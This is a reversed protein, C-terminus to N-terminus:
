AINTGVAALRPHIDRDRQGGDTTEHIRKAERWLDRLIAKATIRLADNQSHGATWEPHSFATHMRRDDYVVRYPSCTCEETHTASWLGNIEGSTCSKSLQRKCSEAILYARMKATGSWNAREGRRRKPAVGASTAQDDDRRQGPDGGNGGAIPMQTDHREQGTSTSARGGAGDGPTDFRPHSAAPLVHLGCYAWLASVTRPQGTASNILPDGIVSPLRAAQKDGIGRQAKIWPYLMHQRLHRALSLTADHEVTRLLAVMAALRAVDPHREDLGFGREEGDEDEPLDAVCSFKGSKIREDDPGGRTLQRLRNENAVRVREIDDLMDAALVLFPDRLSSRQPTSGSIAARDTEPADREITLSSM